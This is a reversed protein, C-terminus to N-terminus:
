DNSSPVPSILTKSKSCTVIAVIFIVIFLVLILVFIIANVFSHRPQVKLGGSMECAKEVTEKDYGEDLLNKMYDDAAIFGGDLGYIHSLLPCHYVTALVTRAQDNEAIENELSRVFDSAEASGLHSDPYYYDLIAPLVARDEWKEDAYDRNMIEYVQQEIEDDSLEDGYDEKLKGRIEDEVKKKEVDCIMNLHIAAAPFQCDHGLLILERGPVRDPSVEDFIDKFDKEYVSAKVPHEHRWSRSYIALFGPSTLFSYVDDRNMIRTRLADRTRKDGLVPLLKMDFRWVYMMDGTSLKVADCKKLMKTAYTHEIIGHQVLIQYDKNVIVVRTYSQQVPWISEVDHNGHVMVFDSKENKWFLEELVKKIIKTRPPDIYEAFINETEENEMEWMHRPPYYKLEYSDGDQVLVLNPKSIKLFIPTFFSIFESHTDSYFCYKPNSSEGLTGAIVVSVAKAAAVEKKVDDFQHYENYLKEDAIFEKIGPLIGNLANIAIAYGLINLEYFQYIAAIDVYFNFMTKDCLIMFKKTLELVGNKGGELRYSSKIEQAIIKDGKPKILYHVFDM